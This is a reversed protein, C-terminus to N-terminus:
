RKLLEGVDVVADPFAQPSFISGHIPGLPAAFLLNALAPLETLAIRHLKENLV